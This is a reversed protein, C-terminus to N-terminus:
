QVTGGLGLDKRLAEAAVPSIKEIDAILKEADQQGLRNTNEVRDVFGGKWKGLLEQARIRAGDNKANRAEKLIMAAVHEMTLEQIAEAEAALTDIYEKVDDNAMLRAGQNRASRPSYGAKIAAHTQNGCKVYHKAFAKRRFSLEVM